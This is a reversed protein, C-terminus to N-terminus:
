EVAITLSVGGDDAVELDNWYAGPYAVAYAHAAELDAFVASLVHATDAGVNVIEIRAEMEDVGTVPLVTSGHM